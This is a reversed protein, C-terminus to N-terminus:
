VHQDARGPEHPQSGCEVLPWLRQLGLTEGAGPGSRAEPTSQVPDPTAEVSAMVVPATEAERNGAGTEASRAMGPACLFPLREDDANCQRWLLAMM